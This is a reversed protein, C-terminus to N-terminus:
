ELCNPRNEREVWRVKGTLRPVVVMDVPHTVLMFPSCFRMTWVVAIIDRGRVALSDIRVEDPPSGYGSAVLVMNRTFDVYPTPPAGHGSTASSWVEEWATSDQIAIRVLPQIGSNGRQYVHGEPDVPQADVPANTAPEPPRGEAGARAGACAGLLVVVGLYCSAWGSVSKPEMDGCPSDTRDRQVAM